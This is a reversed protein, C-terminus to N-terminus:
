ATRLLGVVRPDGSSIVCARAVASLEKDERIMERIAEAKEKVQTKAILNTGGSEDYLRLENLYAQIRTWCEGWITKRRDMLPPFDLKCRDVSYEVRTRDWPSVGPAPIAHGEVDFTLLNPDDEDAPDLLQPDEMRLDGGAPVRKCGSRLPFYTGKKRNGVNGCIRFNRWDFALWWYGDHVTGDMNTVSKKPRFHEVEFHSFCDKAESFWCKDHSLSLLWQKLEGWVKANGDIIADRAAKDPAAALEKILKDAKKLWAEDPKNKKLPIHRM